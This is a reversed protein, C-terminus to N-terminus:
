WASSSPEWRVGSEQELLAIGIASVTPVFALLRFRVDILTKQEESAHAYEALLVQIRDTM